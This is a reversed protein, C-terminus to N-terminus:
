YVNHEYDPVVIKGTNIVKEEGYSTGVANSVYARVYYTTEPDLMLSVTFIGDYLYGKIADDGLVPSPSTSYVAGVEGAELGGFDTIHSTLVYFLHKEDSFDDEVPEATEITALAPPLTTFKVVDGYGIGALGLAYARCYVETSAPLNVLSAVFEDGSVTASVRNDAYSPDSGVAWCVGTEVIRRDSAATLTGVIRASSPTVDSAAGTVVTAPTGEPFATITINDVDVDGKTTGNAIKIRNVNRDNVSVVNAKDTTLEKLLTWTVGEDTSTYVELQKSGRGEDFLVKVVGQSVVPSIVYSGDKLMRLSRGSGDPIYVENTNKYANLYKWEGQGEVTFGVEAVADNKSQPFSSHEFTNTFYPINLNTVIVNGDGDTGDPKTMLVNDIYFQSNSTSRVRVWRVAPDNITVVHKLWAPNKDKYTEVDTWSTGDASVEVHM